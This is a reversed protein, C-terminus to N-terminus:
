ALEEYARKARVEAVAKSMAYGRRTGKRSAAWWEWRHVGSPTRMVMWYPAFDTTTQATIADVGSPGHGMWSISGPAVM